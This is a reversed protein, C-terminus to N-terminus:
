GQSFTKPWERRQEWWDITHARGDRVDDLSWIWEKGSQKFFFSVHEEVCQKYIDGVWEERCERAGPGNEGGVVVWDLYKGITLGRRWIKCILEGANLDVPELLPELNVFRVAAPSELLKWARRNLDAQTEGTVGMWVNPLPWEIQTGYDERFGNPFYDSTLFEYMRDEYKTLLQFVHKQNAAMTAFLDHLFYTPIDHHFIDGMSGVFVLRPKQWRFPEDLRGEIIKPKFEKDKFRWAAMRKAYCNVCGASVPTCGRTPNWTHQTWQIKTTRYTKTM